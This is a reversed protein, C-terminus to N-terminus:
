VFVVEALTQVNKLIECQTTKVTQLPSLQFFTIAGVETYFNLADHQTSFHHSYIPSRKKKFM